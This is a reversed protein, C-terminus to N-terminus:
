HKWRFWSFSNKERL